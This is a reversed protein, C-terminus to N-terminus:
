TRGGRLGLRFHTWFFFFFFFARPPQRDIRDRFHNVPWTKKEIGIFLSVLSAVSTCRVELKMGILVTGYSRRVTLLFLWFRTCVALLLLREM